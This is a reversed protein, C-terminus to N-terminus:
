EGSTDTVDLINQPESPTNLADEEPQIPSEEISAPLAAMESTNNLFAYSAELDDKALKAWEEFTVKDVARIEVPMYAHDKGCIESCQGYYTGPKTIRVWTENLRGPVADTKLGFAPVAFSHLVDDATVTIQIDTEVPLVVVSDTSLLRKQGAEYNIEDEPIMFSDFREIEYDPYEFGWAWQFGTVRLTMEPEAVKDTYYLLKFSPIAIIILIIVPIATWAIELPLNHTTKSPVPNSKRNFRVVVIILLILVFITIGTIVPMLLLDHFHEMREKVPSAPQQLGLAWNTPAGTQASAMYPLLFPLSLLSAFKKM